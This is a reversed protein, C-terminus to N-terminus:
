KEIEDYYDFCGQKMGDAYQEVAEARMEPTDYIVIDYSTRAMERDLESIGAKELLASLPYGSQRLRMMVHATERIGSCFEEKERLLVYTEEYSDLCTGHVLNSFELVAKDRDAYSEAVPVAYGSLVLDKNIETTGYMGMATEIPLENQRLNMISSASTQMDSCFMQKEQEGDSQANANLSLALMPVLLATLAKIRM